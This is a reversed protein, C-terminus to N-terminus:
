YKLCSNLIKLYMSFCDFLNPNSVSHPLLAMMNRYIYWQHNNITKLSNKLSKLKLRKNDVVNTKTM